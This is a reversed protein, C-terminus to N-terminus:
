NRLNALVQRLEESDAFIFVLNGTHKRSPEIDVIQFGKALLLRAVRLSLICKM